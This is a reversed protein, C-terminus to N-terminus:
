ELAPEGHRALLTAFSPDYRHGDSILFYGDAQDYIATVIFQKSECGWDVLDGAAPIQGSAYPTFDIGAAHLETPIM